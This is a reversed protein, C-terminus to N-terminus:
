HAGLAAAVEPDADDALRGDVGAVLTADDVILDADGIAVHTGGDAPEVTATGDKETLAFRSFAARWTLRDAAEDATVPLGIDDAHVALEVAIHFAQWRLPYPGVTSDIDDGDRERLRRRTEDDNTAWEEILDHPAVGAREDIGGQNFDDLGTYGQALGAEIFESVKGDLCAHHYHEVAALHAVVDRVTWGECRSPQGWVPDDDAMAGLWAALRAAEADLIDYPDFGELHREDPGAPDAM